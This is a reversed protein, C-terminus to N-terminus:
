KARGIYILNCRVFQKIKFIRFLRSSWCIFNLWEDSLSHFNVFDKRYIYRLVMVYLAGSLYDWRMKRLLNSRGFCQLIELLVSIWETMEGLYPPIQDQSWAFLVWILSYRLADDIHKVNGIYWALSLDSWFM